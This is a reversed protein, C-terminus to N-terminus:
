NVSHQKCYSSISDWKSKNHGLAFASNPLHDEKIQSEEVRKGQLLVFTEQRAWRPHRATKLKGDTGDPM